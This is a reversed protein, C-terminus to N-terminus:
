IQTTAAQCLRGITLQGHYAIVVHKPLYVEGTHLLLSLERPRLNMNADMGHEVGRRYMM